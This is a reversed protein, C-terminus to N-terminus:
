DRRKVIVQDLNVLASNVTLLKTFWIHSCSQQDLIQNNSTAKINTQGVRIEKLDDFKLTKSETM